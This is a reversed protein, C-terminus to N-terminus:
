RQQSESIKFVNTKGACRTLYWPSIKLETKSEGSLGLAYIKAARVVYHKQPNEVKLISQEICLNDIQGRELKLITSSLKGAMLHIEKRKTELKKRSEKCITLNLEMYIQKM